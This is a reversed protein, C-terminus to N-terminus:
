RRRSPSSLPPHGPQQHSGSGSGALPGRTSRAARQKTDPSSAGRGLAGGVATAPSLAGPRAARGATGPSFSGARGSAALAAAGGAPSGAKSSGSGSGGGGLLLGGPAGAGGFFRARPSAAGGADGSGGGGAGDGTRAAAAAAAATVGTAVVAPSATFSEASRMIAATIPDDRDPIVVCVSAHAGGASFSLVACGGARAAGAAEDGAGESGRGGGDSCGAEDDPSSSRSGASASSAASASSGRQDGEAGEEGGAESGGGDAGVAAAAADEPAAAAAAAGGPPPPPAAGPGDTVWPHRNLEAWQIRRLPDVVLLRKVLDRAAASVRPPLPAYTGRNTAPRARNRPTHQSAAQTNQTMALVVVCVRQEGGVGGHAGVCACRQIARFLAGRGGGGFPLAGCLAEYLLVGLSWMDVSPGDYSRGGVVEPAAFEPTGCQASLGAAGAAAATVAALGFDALKADGAGDVLVNEPKLDRHAVRRRHCYELGAAIQM